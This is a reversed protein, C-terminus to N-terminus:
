AYAGSGAFGFVDDGPAFGEASSIEVTGSVDIGLIAPLPKESLGRRYKWDIPNVSAAHVKILVEDDGPEPRDAQELRLVDPDGTEHLVVAQM